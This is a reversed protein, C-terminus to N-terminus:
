FEAGAGGGGFSGGGFKTSPQDKGQSLTEAIIIAEINKLGIKDNRLQQATFGYEPQKLMQMLMYSLAIIIIGAIIMATEAPLVAYYYRVTFVTAAVLLLGARILVIDKKVIGGIIYLLPIGATFLWFLWAFPISDSPKLQLHFFSNGTERVAFYNGAIYFCLLATIETIAFCHKYFRKQQQMSFQKSMFYVAASLLMLIFPTIAKAINGLPELMFFVTALLAITAILAMLRDTFRLMGYLALILVLLANIVNATDFIINIGGIICVAGLLLLADDVGSCYHNKNKVMFELVAYCIIGFFIVLAGFSSESSGTLFVLGILGLTFAAIIITLIYLGIRIFINPGYFGSPFLPVAADRETKTICNDEFANQLQEQADNNDLWQRNYAIM